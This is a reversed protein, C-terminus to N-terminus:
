VVRLDRMVEFAERAVAPYIEPGFHAFDKQGGIGARRLIRDIDVIPFDLKRSLEALAVNFDRTRRVLPDRVFQYNHVLKRPEVTPINLVAVQAGTRKRVLDIIKEHNAAFTEVGIRGINEFNERFWGVASSDALVREMPQTLWWGGPDVLLGTERHRYMNRALDSGTSFFVVSKPFERNDPLDPVDFTGEFLVPRFHNEPIMLKTTIQEVCERPLDSLTQLIFDSRAGAIEGDNFICCTGDFTQRIMDKCAFIMRVHCAGKLYIGVRKKERTRTWFLLYNEGVIEKDFRSRVTRYHMRVFKYYRRLVRELLTNQGAFEQWLRLGTRLLAGM